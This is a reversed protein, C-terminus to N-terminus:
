KGVAKLYKLHLPFEKLAELLEEKLITYFVSVTKAKISCSRKNLLFIGIEGFYGGETMLAIVTKEDTALVQVIGSKIFFM